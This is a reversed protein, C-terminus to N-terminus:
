LSSLRPPFSLLSLLFTIDLMGGFSSAIKAWREYTVTTRVDKLHIGSLEFVKDSIQQKLASTLTKPICNEIVVFGYRQFFAVQTDSLAVTYENLVDEENFGSNSVAPTSNLQVDKIRQNIAEDGKWQEQGYLRRGLANLTVPQYNAQEIHAWRQPFDSFWFPGTDVCTTELECVERINPLKEANVFTKHLKNIALFHCCTPTTSPKDRKTQPTSM